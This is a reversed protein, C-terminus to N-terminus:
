HKEVQSRQFRERLQEVYEYPVTVSGILPQGKNMGHCDSGGTVLLEHRDAFGMYHEIDRTSHRSHICEIGDIGVEVLGEIMRDPINLGPHALVSVGGAERLIQVAKDAPLVDKPAWGKRNKKLYREFADDVSRCFGRRVLARAIHPRGPAECDAIEFVEEVPLDVGAQNLKDVMRHIRNQRERQTQLLCTRLPQYTPDFGYGLLHFEVGQYHATLEAGWLFEIGKAQCAAETAACGDVTDHDTLAIASLGKEVAHEVLEQPSYTGDSFHTHLHLDAVVRRSERTPM